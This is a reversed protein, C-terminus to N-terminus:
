TVPSKVFVYYFRNSDVISYTYFFPYVVKIMFVIPKNIAATRRVITDTDAFMPDALISVLGVM